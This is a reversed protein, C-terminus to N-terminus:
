GQKKTEIPVIKEVEIMGDKITGTVEVEHGAHATALKQNSLGYTKGDASLVAKAGKKICDKACQEGNANANKAGCYEDVVWGKVTESKAATTEGASLTTIGALAIVVATFMSAFRKM